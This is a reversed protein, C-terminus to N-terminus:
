FLHPLNVNCNLFQAFLTKRMLCGILTSYVFTNLFPLYFFKPDNIFPCILISYGSDVEM